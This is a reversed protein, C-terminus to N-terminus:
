KKKAPNKIWQAAEKPSFKKKELATKVAYLGVGTALTGVVRQGNDSILKKVMSKGPEVDQELLDKLKKEDSLRTIYKKLDDESLTRRKELVKKRKAIVRAEKGTRKKRVGWRMGKVGYHALFDHVITEVM